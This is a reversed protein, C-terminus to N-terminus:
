PEYNIRIKNSCSKKIYISTIIGTLLVLPNLSSLKGDDAFLKNDDKLYVGVNDNNDLFKSGGFIDGIDESGNISYGIRIFNEKNDVITLGHNFQLIPTEKTLTKFQEFEIFPKHYNEMPFFLHLKFTMHIKLVRLGFDIIEVNVDFNFDEFNEESIKIAVVFKSGLELVKTETKFTEGKVPITIFLILFILSIPIIKYKM